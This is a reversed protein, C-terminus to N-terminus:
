KHELEGCFSSNKKLWFLFFIALLYLLNHIIEKGLPLQQKLEGLNVEREELQQKKGMHDNESKAKTGEQSPSSLSVTEKSENHYALCLLILVEFYLLFNTMKIIEQAKKSKGWQKKHWMNTIVKSYSEEWKATRAKLKM